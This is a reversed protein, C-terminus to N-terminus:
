KKTFDKSSVLTGSTYVQETTLNGKDDWWMWTGEKEGNGSYSGEYNKTGNEHYGTWSGTHIMGPLIGGESHKKGNKHFNVQKKAAFNIETELQGNEYWNKWNGTMIGKDYQEESRKQGNEYWYNWKGDKTVATLKRAQMEKSDTPDIVADGIIAGESKKSGNPWNETQVNQASATLLLAFAAFTLITKKM